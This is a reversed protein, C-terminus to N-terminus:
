GTALQQLLLRNVRGNAPTIGRERKYATVAVRTAEDLQGTVPVSVAAQLREIEPRTLAREVETLGSDAAANAEGDKAMKPALKGGLYAANSIGMLLYLNDPIEPLGESRLVSVLSYVWTFLTFALMQFRLLDFRGDDDRILNALGPEERHSPPADGREIARALVSSSGSIGLLVLIGPSIVLLQGTGIWVFCLSFVVLVTWLLIQTNSLSYAGDPRRLLEKLVMFPNFSRVFIASILFALVVLMVGAGAAAAFSSVTFSRTADVVVNSGDYGIVRLQAPYGGLWDKRADGADAMLTTIARPVDVEFIAWEGTRELLRANLAPLASSAARLSDGPLGFCFALVKNAFDFKEATVKVKLLSGAMARTTKLIEVQARPGAPATQELTIGSALAVEFGQPDIDASWELTSGSGVLVRGPGAASVYETPTVRFSSPTRDPPGVELQRHGLGHAVGKEVRLLYRRGLSEVFVKGTPKSADDSGWSRVREFVLQTAGTAIAAKDVMQAPVAVSRGAGARGAPGFRSADASITLARGATLQLRPILEFEQPDFRLPASAELSRVPWCAEAGHALGAAACLLLLAIARM